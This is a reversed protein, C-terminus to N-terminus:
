DSNGKTPRKRTPRFRFTPDSDFPNGSSTSSSASGFSPRWRRSVPQLRSTSERGRPRSPKRSVAPRAYAAALADFAAVDSAAGAVADSPWRSRRPPTACRPTRRPRASGPWAQWRRRSTRRRHGARRSSARRGRGPSGPQVAAARPEDARRRQGAPAGGRPRFHALAEDAQAPAAPAARRPQQAGARLRSRDPAGRSVAAIAEDRRGRASLRSASTTTRRRRRRISGCRDGTHAIAEDLRGAELYCIARGRRPAASQDPDAECCSPTRPSIKPAAGEAPRGREPGSFDANARPVVQMWLDGM